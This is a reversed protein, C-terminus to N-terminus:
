IIIVAALNVNFFRGIDPKSGSTEDLAGRAYAGQFIYGIITAIIGFIASIWFIRGYDSSINGLWQIVGSVVLSILIVVIWSLANEKYRNWGYSFAEGISFQEATPAGYAGGGYAGPAGYDGPPPPYGGPGGAPQGYGGAPPPPYGPQAGYGPQQAGYGPPPGQPM